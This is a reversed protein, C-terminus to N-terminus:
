FGRTIKCVCDASHVAPNSIPLPTWGHFNRFCSKSIATPGFPRSMPWGKPRTQLSWAMKPARPPWDMKGGFFDFILFLCQLKSKEDGIWLNHDGSRLAGIFFKLETPWFYIQHGFELIGQPFKLIQGGIKQFEKWFDLYCTLHWSDFKTIRQNQFNCPFINFFTLAELSHTKCLFWFWSIAM